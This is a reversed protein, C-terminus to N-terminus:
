IKQLHEQIETLATKERDASLLKVAISIDSATESATLGETFAGAM